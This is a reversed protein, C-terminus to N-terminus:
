ITAMSLDFNEGRWRSNYLSSVFLVGCSLLNHCIASPNHMNDIIRSICVICVNPIDRYWIARYQVCHLKPRANLECCAGMRALCSHRENTIQLFTVALYRYTVTYILKMEAVWHFLVYHSCHAYNRFAICHTILIFMHRESVAFYIFVNHYVNHYTLAQEHIGFWKLCRELSCKSMDDLESCVCIGNAACLGNAARPICNTICLILRIVADLKGESYGWNLVLNGQQIPANQLCIDVYGSYSNCPTNAM